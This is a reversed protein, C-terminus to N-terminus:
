EEKHTEASGMYGYCKEAFYAKPIWGAKTFYGKERLEANWKRIVAYATSEAIGLQEAVQKASLYM